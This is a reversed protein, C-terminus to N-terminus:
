SLYRLLANTFPVNKFLITSCFLVDMLLKQFVPHPLQGNDGRIGDTSFKIYTTLVVGSDFFRKICTCIPAEEALTSLIRIIHM